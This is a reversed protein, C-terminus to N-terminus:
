DYCQIQLFYHRWKAMWQTCEISWCTKSKREDIKKQKGCTQEMFKDDGIRSMNDQVSSFTLIQIYTLEYFVIYWWIFM